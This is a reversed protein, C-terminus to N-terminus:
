AVVTRGRTLEGVQEWVPNEKTSQEPRYLWLDEIFVEGGKLEPGVQGIRMVRRVGWRDIGIQVFLDLARVILAKTAQYRVPPDNDIMALLCLTEVASKPDDAHITSMGPHDSMQARMLWVAAGGHRVEGVILWRPSMRMATTVLDGVAIGYKGEVTAPRAELSVVHPHDLFVEAPDEVLLIRQDPPILSALCSLLTTKGTATGGAIMLRLQRQVVERLFEMMPENLEKWTLLHDPGVPKEEYFRINMAPYDGNAIRPIVVNVRAGAPLKSSRPLKAAVIPEAENVRRGVAGLLKDVVIRVETVGLRSFGPVIEEVSVPNTRGKPLVWLAGDQNLMIESLDKRELLPELFGLGLMQHQIRQALEAEIRYDVHGLNHGRLEAQTWHRIREIIAQLTEPDPDLVQAPAFESNVRAVVAEAIASAVEPEVTAPRDQQQAYQWVM